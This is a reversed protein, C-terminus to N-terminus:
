ALLGKPLAPVGAKFASIDVLDALAGYLPEVRRYIEWARSERPGNDAVNTVANLLDLVSISDTGQQAMALQEALVGMGWGPLRQQLTKLPRVVFEPQTRLFEEQDNQKAALHRLTGAAWDLCSVPISLPRTAVDQLQALVAAREELWDAVKRAGFEGHGVHRMVLSGLGLRKVVLGNSCVQRYIGITYRIAHGLHLSTFLRMALFSDGGQSGGLRDWSITDPLVIDPLTFFAILQAGLQYHHLTQVKWGADLMPEAAQWHDVIHFQSGGRGLVSTKGGAALVPVRLRRDEEYERHDVLGLEVREGAESITYVPHSSSYVPATGVTTEATTEM